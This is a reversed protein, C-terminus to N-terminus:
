KQNAGAKVPVPRPWLKIQGLRSGFKPEPTSEVEELLRAELEARLDDNMSAFTADKQRQENEVRIQAPTLYPFM